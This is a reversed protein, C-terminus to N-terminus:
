TDRYTTKRKKIMSLLAREQNIRRLVNENSGRATWPIKLVRRYVWMEFAEIKHMTTVKLAWGEVEYLLVSWIYCKILRVKLARTLDTCTFIRKFKMFTNRDNEIHCRIKLDSTWEETLCVGLYTFKNARETSSGDSTLGVNKLM